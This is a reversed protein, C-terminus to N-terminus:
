PSIDGERPAPEFGSATAAERRCQRRERWALEAILAAGFIIALVTAVAGFTSVASLFGSRDEKTDAAVQIAGLISSQAYTDTFGTM